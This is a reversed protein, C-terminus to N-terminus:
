HTFYDALHTPWHVRRGSRTTRTSPPKDERSPPSERTPQATQSPTSDPSHSINTSPSSSHMSELYAPKLRDVSVTDRRGKVDVTFYKTSRELVKYPGDYPPQLPKRVADHRIFVHTADKLTDRNDEQSSVSRPPTAKLVQMRSRLEAVYSSPDLSTDAPQPSFYAGPLRLTTGYVLEATTCGMDEKLSTRIGLLVLPLADTWHEQHPHGKLAGKLQRHLREVLGNACPHYATTRIHKTGLLRTFAQWLHSEFQGGRDTTVTTPTGFRAVWTSIFAQAVTEATCDKIPVAEPWRTFRDVCTLLYTFGRSPPLPGVLDIHVQDFRADPTSFTGPPSRHHRHVKARQCQLCSRAWRRVDANIGPWVFHKTVLRQTARIGPHSLSHLTDFILRRFNEPVVPRQVGTSVDCLLTLGDSLALPVQQLELSSDALSKLVGPDEEQAAAMVRFDVVPGSETTHIANIPLRSLTDAVTNNSGSVHRIDSTFQSIYNLHRSQRPSHRDPKSALAYTLPKHDTLISFQRGEVFYRFHKIALYIALLERDFTSYRTEAPKLSKSFYALPQWQGGIFQQLVAGVAAESADAMICTPAGQQPHVLLTAEALAEKVSNFAAVTADTWTLTNPTSKSLLRNLPHLITAGNPIFRRYFNVLGLFERLKRQSAPQPFNRIVETKSELPRIGSADVLYGLFEVSSVGFVSKSVNIVIGHDHLRQLVLRLHHLHEEESSSAILLDDIYGYVFPLGRLVQDIFRQFTQAANRLGFPMRSFEFLGFPTTIATKHVDGPEVPIQHYARVLDIHSFIVAGRLTATFDHLHPVPYRDPVTVRNLARFDGCPRWDGPTRKPVMHLPSAWSSSSPRVIGLQLMHDFEKRAIQLREPALRRTRGFVAPGTTEIHHTVTHKIPRDSFGAQTVSPFEALLNAFRNSHDSLPRPLGAPSHDRCVIGQVRLQTTSDSLTSHRLDVLLGFHYLFDAGLVPQPVDAIIFVWRFTRRLGIDLTLSRTGFTAIPSGNIAQLNGESQRASCDARSPLIISVQAGTDVLFRLSTGSDKVYFLRGNPCPGAVTTTALRRGPLKVAM